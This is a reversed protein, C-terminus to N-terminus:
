AVYPSVPYSVHFMYIHKPIKQGEFSLAVTYSPSYFVGSNSDYSSDSQSPTSIRRNLRNVAVVKFPSNINDTIQQE